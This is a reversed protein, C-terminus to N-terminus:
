IPLALAVPTPLRDEESHQRLPESPQACEIAWIEEQLVQQLWSNQRLFSYNNYRPDRYNTIKGTTFAGIVEAIGDQVTYRPQFGLVNHIKDFRVRYNRGDEGLQTVVRATPVMEKLLTGLSAIQYNQENCGVNFIQGSVASIPAQLALVIAEAVDRVHVLPRWQTGGCISVEGDQIARAALLNVVLDFRPRGSLGYVTGFRLIVPSFFATAMGLLVRESGLKTRAYLSLPALASREDLTQDSAGYVSCTSAFIFRRIGLGRSIEAITRTAMLNIDITLDECVSCAADGVIAGLHVVARVGNAARVVTDVRRFDGVVLDFEPHSYFPILPDDGYLLLDLVRVRYGLGLLREVLASGIYGAGGIVLVDCERGHAIHPDRPYDKKGTQRCLLVVCLRAAILLVASFLCALALGFRPFPTATPFLFVLFGFLLYSLGVSEAIVRVKYRGRYARTRSYFGNVYFVVLSILTLLWSYERYLALSGEYIHGSLSTNTATAVSWLDPLVLAIALSFNVMIMDAIVRVAVDLGPYKGLRQM